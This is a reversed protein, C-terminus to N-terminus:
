PSGVHRAPDSRLAHVMTARLSRAPPGDRNGHSFAAARETRPLEREIVKHDGFILKM